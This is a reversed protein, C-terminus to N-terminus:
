KPGSLGPSSTDKVGRDQIDKMFVDRPIYFNKNRTVKWLKEKSTSNAVSAQNQAIGNVASRNKGARKGGAADVNTVIVATRNKSVVPVIVATAIIAPANVATSNVASTNVATDNVSSSLM